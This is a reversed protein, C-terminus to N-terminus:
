VNRLAPVIEARSAYSAPIIGACIGTVCALLMGVWALHLSPIFAVTVAEAGVSLSSLKLVVLATGVGLTGGAVSLFTSEALVLTFVKFGSFGLTRLVAHEQIRDEVSMLTTTAVLALVLGVCALGLYHAMEILQSLDGLSKAQFVGKARTNTEVPGKRYREDIATSVQMPDTGPVLIVELQTVTGVLNAGQRRQLFELHSYIYNEEAPNESRYIGAVNVSLDGISFKDGVKIKRRNAVSQGVIAADQHTEFENWNGSIFEFDRASRLKKPPVGYFVVVDLSARCNNTFVQIPIVDKVGAFKSIQQDYDQPLHSTAPCFKNAQFVILSGRAEQRQKLDNMGEQISQIFCFVFLAVASGAVTLMTRARHGWLTKMIYAILKM